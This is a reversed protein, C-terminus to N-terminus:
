HRAQRGASFSGSLWLFWDSAKKKRKRIIHDDFPIGSLNLLIKILDVFHLRRDNKRAAPVMPVTADAALPKPRARM